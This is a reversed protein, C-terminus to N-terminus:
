LRGPGFHNGGREKIFSGPIRDLPDISISM